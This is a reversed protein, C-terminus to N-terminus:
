ETVGNSVRAFKKYSDVVTLFDLSKWMTVFGFFSLPFYTAHVLMHM